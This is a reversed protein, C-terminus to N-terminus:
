CNKDGPNAFEIHQHHEFYIGNKIVELQGLRQSLRIPFFVAEMGAQTGKAKIMKWITIFMNSHIWMRTKKKKAFHFDGNVENVKQLPLKNLSLWTEVDNYVRYAECGFICASFFIKTRLLDLGCTKKTRGTNKTYISLCFFSNASYPPSKPLWWQYLITSAPGGM